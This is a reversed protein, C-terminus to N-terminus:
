CLMVLLISDFIYPFPVHQHALVTVRFIPIDQPGLNGSLDGTSTPQFHFLLWAVGYVMINAMVTFAYRCSLPCRM